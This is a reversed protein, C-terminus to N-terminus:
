FGGIAEGVAAGGLTANSSNATPNMGYIPSNSIGLTSTIGEFKRSCRSEPSYNMDVLM